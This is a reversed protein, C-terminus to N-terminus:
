QEYKEKTVATLELVQKLQEIYQSLLTACKIPSAGMDDPTARPAESYAPRSPPTGTQEKLAQAFGEVVRSILNRGSGSGKSSKSNFGFMPVQPPSDYDRHTGVQLM